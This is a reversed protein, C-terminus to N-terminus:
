VMHGNQNEYNRIVMSDAKRFGRSEYFTIKDPDCSLDIMYLDGLTQIMMDMLKSGTGKHQYNPLVELLPIYASLVGDSVANVFGIVTNDEVALWIYKSEKLMHYFMELKPPNPWGVFFGDLMDTTIHELNDQFKM